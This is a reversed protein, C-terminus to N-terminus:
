TRRWLAARWYTLGLRYKNKSNNRGLHPLKNPKERGLEGTQWPGLSHWCLSWTYWGDEAKNDDAFKSLHIRNRQGPQQHICKTPQNNTTPLYLQVSVSGILTSWQPIAGVEPRSSSKEGSIMVSQTRGSFWNKLWRVRWEDLVWRRLKGGLINHPVIDFAKSFNLYVETIETSRITSQGDRRVLKHLLGVCDCM